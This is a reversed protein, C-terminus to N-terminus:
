ISHGLVSHSQFLQKFNSVRQSDRIPLLCSFVFVCALVCLKMSSALVCARLFIICTNYPSCFFQHLIIIIYMYESHTRRFVPVSFFKSTALLGQHGFFDERECWMYSWLLDSVRYNNPLKSSYLQIKTGLSIWLSEFEFVNLSM